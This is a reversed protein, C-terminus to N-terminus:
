TEAIFEYTGHQQVARLRPLFIREDAKRLRRSLERSLNMQIMVFQTMDNQYVDFLQETSIVLATCDKVALVSGARRDLDIMAMEGLCDGRVLRSLFYQKGEWNKLVVVEGSELVYMSNEQDGEHFFFEGAPVHISDSHDVLSQLIGEDIGGFVPMNQLLELREKEM